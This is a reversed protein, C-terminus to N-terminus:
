SIFSMVTKHPFYHFHGDHSHIQLLFNGTKRYMGLAQLWGSEEDVKDLMYLQSSLWGLNLNKMTLLAMTFYDLVVRRKKKKKTM